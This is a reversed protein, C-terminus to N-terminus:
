DVEEAYGTEILGEIFSEAREEVTDGSISFTRGTLHDVQRPFNDMYENLPVDNALFSSKRMALVIDLTKGEFIDDGIRISYIGEM